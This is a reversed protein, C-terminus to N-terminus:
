RGPETCEGALNARLSLRTPEAADENAVAGASVGAAEHWAGCSRGHGDHRPRLGRQWRQEHERPAAAVCATGLARQRVLVGGGPDPEGGGAAGRRGGDVHQFALAGTHARRGGRSAGKGLDPGFEGPTAAFVRRRLSHLQLPHSRVPLEALLSNGERSHGELGALGALTHIGLEGVAQLRSNSAPASLPEQLDRVDGTRAAPLVGVGRWLGRDSCPLRRLDEHPLQVSAFEPDLRRVRPRLRQPLCHGALLLLGRTRLADARRGSERPRHRNWGARAARRHGGRGAGLGRECPRPVHPAAGGLRRHRRPPAAQRAAALAGARRGEM